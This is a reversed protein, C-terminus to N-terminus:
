APRPLRSYTTTISATKKMHRPESVCYQQGRHKCPHHHTIFRPPKRMPLGPGVGGGGRWVCVPPASVWRAGDRSQLSALNITEQNRYQMYCAPAIIHATNQKNLEPPAKRQWLLCPTHAPRQKM